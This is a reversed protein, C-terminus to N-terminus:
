GYRCHTYRSRIWKVSLTLGPFNAYSVSSLVISPNKVQIKSRPHDEDKGKREQEQTTEVYHTTHICACIYMYHIIFSQMFLRRQIQNQPNPNLLIYSLSLDSPLQLSSAKLHHWGKIKKVHSNISGCRRGRRMEIFCM